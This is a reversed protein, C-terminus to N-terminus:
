SYRNVYAVGPELVVPIRSWGFRFALCLHSFIYILANGDGNDYWIIPLERAAKGGFWNLPVIRYEAFWVTSKERSICPYSGLTVLGSRGPAM